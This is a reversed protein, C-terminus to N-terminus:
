QKILQVPSSRLANYTVIDGCVAIVTIITLRTTTM